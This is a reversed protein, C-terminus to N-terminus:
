TSQVSEASPVVLLGMGTQINVGLRECMTCANNCVKGCRDRLVARVGDDVDDGVRDVRSHGDEGLDELRGADVVLRLDKPHRREVANAAVREHTLELLQVHLKHVHRDDAAVRADGDQRQKGLRAGSVTSRKLDM